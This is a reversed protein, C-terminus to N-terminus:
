ARRVTPKGPFRIPERSEPANEVNWVRSIRGPEPAGEVGLGATSERGVQV